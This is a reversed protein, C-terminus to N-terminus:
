RQEPVTLPGGDAPRAPAPWPTVPEDYASEEAASHAPACGPDHGGDHAPPHAEPPRAAFVARYEPDAWLTTHAGVARLGGEHLWAVADAGAATSVRHAVVLHTRTGTHAALARQVRRETVTDLSSTADDLILVRGAHAFARALGLRQREGGSLPAHELPTRAGDPLLAVFGDAAAARLAEALRAAGPDGAGFAVAEEVTAGPLEPRAFAYGVEDRLRVPDVGDLPVGDVTVTGADPDTLRGAVAALLSKGSGSRGVVAMSTGGPVTLTIGRLLARGDRVVDVDRLVLTGPGGPPLTLGRHPLGPLALLPALRRAAARGRSIATLAGTLAGIGIALVAYRSVALLEGVSLAGAALRLGGVGLVLFTLLPLLVASGGVARGHVTWTRRGHDALATLPALVRARERAASHSARVTDAGDLAETLRTAILAQERQYDAAAASTDRVLARLLLLLLPFGALLALGTWPDILFLGAIGGLPLLVTAVATATAVPVAAAEAANATLRTTLDGPAAVAAGHRPEARVVRDLVTTRLRATLTATTTGGLIAVAADLLVDAAILGACLLLAAGPLRGDTILTDVASGLAFPLAVAALAALASCLGLVTLPLRGARVVTPPRATATPPVRTM